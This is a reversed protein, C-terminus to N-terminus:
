HISRQNTRAEDETTRTARDRERGGFYMALGGLATLGVGALFVTITRRDIRRLSSTKKQAAEEMIHSAEAIVAQSPRGIHAGNSDIIVLGAPKKSALQAVTKDWLTQPNTLREFNPLHVGDIHNLIRRETRAQEGLRRLDATIQGELQELASTSPLPTGHPASYSLTFELKRGASDLAIPHGWGLYDGVFARRGWFCRDESHGVFWAKPPLGAHRIAKGVGSDVSSDIADFEYERGNTAFCSYLLPKWIM